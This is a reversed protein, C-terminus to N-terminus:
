TSWRDCLGLRDGRRLSLRQTTGAPFEWVSAAAGQGAWRRRQMPAVIRLVEGAANCFVVDIPAALFLTHVANCPHLRWIWQRQTAPACILGRARQLFTECCRVRWPFACDNVVLYRTRM